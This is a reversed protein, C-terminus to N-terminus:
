AVQENSSDGEGMTRLYQYRVWSKRAIQRLRAAAMTVASRGDSFAGVVRARERIERVIRRLSENSRLSPQHATPYRYFALTDEFAEDVYGAVGEQGMERLRAAARGASERAAYVTPGAHIQQLLETVQFLDAGRTLSLAYECFQSVCTQYAAAPFVRKATQMLAPSREGVILQVGDLGRDKLSRWFAEAAPENETSGEAVGLVERRGATNVGIAILVSPRIADSGSGRRLPTGDVFVYPFRRRLPEKLWAEIAEDIQRSMDSIKALSVRKGWLEQGLCEAKKISLDAHYVELIAEEFSTRRKLYHDAIAIEPPVTRLKSGYAVASRGAKSESGRRVPFLSTDLEFDEARARDAAATLDASFDRDGTDELGTGEPRRRGSSKSRRRPGGTADDKGNALHKM